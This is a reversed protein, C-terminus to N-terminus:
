FRILDPGPGFAEDRAIRLDNTGKGLGVRGNPALVLM